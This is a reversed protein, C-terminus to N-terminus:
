SMSRKARGKIGLMMGREMIFHAPEFILRWYLFNLIPHTLDPFKYTGRSRVILRSTQDDIPRVFFGWDDGLVFWRGPEIAAVRLAVSPHLWVEDGVELHQWEPVIEDANKMHAGSLNELWTYSYFGARHQGLQVLWPWVRKAPARITVARTSYTQPKPVLEDGPFCDNVEADTAGWRLM